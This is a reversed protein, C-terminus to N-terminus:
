GLVDEDEWILSSVKWSDDIKVFQFLKCGQQQFYKGDLVGSKEYRSYRQAINNSIKTEESIEQEEFETLTGGTLIKQRSSAFSDLTYATHMRGAKRIILAEALCIHYLAGIDPLGSNKNTFVTFFKEVTKNIQITDNNM